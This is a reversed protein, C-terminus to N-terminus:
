LGQFYPDNLRNQQNAKRAIAHPNRRKAIEPLIVHRYWNREYKTDKNTTDEMWPIGRSLCQKVLMQKPVDLLPRFVKGNDRLMSLSDHRCTHSILRMLITEVQDDLHHGTMVRDFGLDKQLSFMFGYRQRRFEDEVSGAAKIKDVDGYGTYCSINRQRCYEEVFLQDRKDDHRSRHNFHAVVFKVDSRHVFDLLFMSDVGGSIGLVYGSTHRLRIEERLKSWSYSLM